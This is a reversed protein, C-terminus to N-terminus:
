IIVYPKVNLLMKKLLDEEDLLLSVKQKFLARIDHIDTCKLCSYAQEDTILSDERTTIIECKTHYRNGCHECTVYKLIDNSNVFCKEADCKNGSQELVGVLVSEYGNFHNELELIAEAHEELQKSKQSLRVSALEWQGNIRQKDALLQDSNEVNDYQKCKELLLNYLLLVVGLMIHLGPPAVQSLSSLPFLMPVIISFHQAGNKRMNGDNRHDILNEKYNKLYSVVTRKEAYCHNPTHPHGGHKQLHSLTTKDM